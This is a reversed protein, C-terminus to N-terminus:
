HRFRVPSSLSAMRRAAAADPINRLRAQEWRKDRKLAVAKGGADRALRGFRLLGQAGHSNSATSDKPQSKGVRVLMRGIYKGVLGAVKFSRDLRQLVTPDSPHLAAGAKARGDARKNCMHDIFSLRGELVHKNSCHAPVWRVIIRDRGIDRVRTWIRRWM